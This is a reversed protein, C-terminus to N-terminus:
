FEIDIRCGAPISSKTLRLRVRSVGIRLFDLIRDAAACAKKNDTTVMRM